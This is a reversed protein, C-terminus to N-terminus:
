IEGREAIVHDPTTALDIRAAIIDIRVSAGRLREALYARPTDCECGDALGLLHGSIRALEMCLDGSVRGDVRTSARGTDPEAPCSARSCQRRRTM